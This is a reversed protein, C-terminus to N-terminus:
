SGSSPKAPTTTSTTPPAPPPRTFAGEPVGGTWDERLAPPSSDGWAKGATAPLVHFGGLDAEYQPKDRVDNVFYESCNAVGNSLSYSGSIAGNAGGTGLYSGGAYLAYSSASLGFAAKAAGGTTVAGPVSYDVAGNTTSQIPGAMQDKLQQQCSIAFLQGTRFAEPTMRGNNILPNQVFAVQASARPSYEGANVKAVDEPKAREYGNFSTTACAGLSLSSSAALVIMGVRRLTTIVAMHGEELLTAQTLGKVSLISLVEGVM